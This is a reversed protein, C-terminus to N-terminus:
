TAATTEVDRDDAHVPTQSLLDGFGEDMRNHVPLSSYPKQSISKARSSRVEVVPRRGDLDPSAIDRRIQRWSSRARGGGSMSSRADGGDANGDGTVDDRAVTLLYVDRPGIDKKWSNLRVPTRAINVGTTINISSNFRALICTISLRTRSNTM